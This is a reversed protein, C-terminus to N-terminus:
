QWSAGWLRSGERGDRGSCRCYTSTKTSSKMPSACPPLFLCPWTRRTRSWAISEMKLGKSLSSSGSRRSGTEMFFSCWPSQEQDVMRFTKPHITSLTAMVIVRGCCRWSRKASIRAEIGLDCRLIEVLFHCLTKPSSRDMAMAKGPARCKNLWMCLARWVSFPPRM